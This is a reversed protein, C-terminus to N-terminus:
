LSFIGSLINRQYNYLVQFILDLTLIFFHGLRVIFVRKIFGISLFFSFRLAIYTM